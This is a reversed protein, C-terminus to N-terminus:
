QVTTFEDDEGPQEFSDPTPPAKPPIQTPAQKPPDVKKNRRNTIRKFLGVAGPKETEMEELLRKASDHSLPEQPPTIIDEKAKLVQEDIKQCKLCPKVIGDKVIAANPEMCGPCKLGQSSNVPADPKNRQEMFERFDNQLNQQNAIANRRALEMGMEEESECRNIVIVVNESEKMDRIQQTIDIVCQGTFDFQFNSEPGMILHIVHLPDKKEHLIIM